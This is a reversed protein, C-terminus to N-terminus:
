VPIGSYLGQYLWIAAITLTLVGAAIGMWKIVGNLRIIRELTQAHERELAAEARDLFIQDEEHIGQIARYIVFALLVAMTAGWLRVLLMLM